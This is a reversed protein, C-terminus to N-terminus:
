ARLGTARLPGLLEYAREVLPRECSRRIRGFQRVPDVRERLRLRLASQERRRLTEPERNKLRLLVGVAAPGVAVEDEVAVRGEERPAGILPAPVGPRTRSVGVALSGYHRSERVAEFKIVVHVRYAVHRRKVAVVVAQRVTELVRQRISEGRVIVDGGAVRIVIRGEFIEDGHGYFLPEALVGDAM